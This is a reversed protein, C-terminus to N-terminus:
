QGEEEADQWEGYRGSGPRSGLVGNPRRDDAPHERGRENVENEDRKEEDKHGLHESSLPRVLCGLM